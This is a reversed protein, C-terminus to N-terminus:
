RPFSCSCFALQSYHSGLAKDQRDSVITHFPLLVLVSGLPWVRTHIAGETQWVSRSPITEHIYVRFINQIPGFSLSKKNKKAKVEVRYSSFLALKQKIVNLRFGTMPIKQTHTLTAASYSTSCQKWLTCHRYIHFPKLPPPPPTWSDHSARRSYLENKIWVSWWDAGAPYLQAEQYWDAHLCGREGWLPPPPQPHRPPCKSKFPLM